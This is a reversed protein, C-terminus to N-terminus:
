YYSHVYTQDNKLYISVYVYFLSTKWVVHNNLAGSLSMKVSEVTHHLSPRVPLRIIAYLASLM